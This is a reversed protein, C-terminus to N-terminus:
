EQKRGHIRNHCCEHVVAMDEYDERGLNAYSKHHVHPASGLPWGCKECIGGALEIREKRTDQWVQSEYYSKRMPNPHAPPPHVKRSMGKDLFCANLRVAGSESPIQIFV